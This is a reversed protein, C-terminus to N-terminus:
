VVELNPIIITFTAGEGEQSDIEITGGMLEVLKKCIALGLGTGGYKNRDQDSVQEFDDFIVSQQDLPIGCGTDIVKIKLVGSYKEQNRWFLELRIMGSDTFKIANSILNIVIQRLRFSDIKVKAPLDKDIDTKLELEKESLSPEFFLAIENMLNKLNCPAAKLEIRGAEIKSLDLIDNILILLSSSSSHIIKAHEVSKKDSSRNEILEAFGIISNMPTRLEHSMNSLFASKSENAQKAKETEEELEKNQQEIKAHSEEIRRRYNDIELSMDKFSNILNGLEDGPKSEIVPLRGHKLEDVAFSLSTIKGAFNKTFIVCVLFVTFLILITGIVLFKYASNIGAFISEYSSKIMVGGSIGEYSMYPSSPSITLLVKKGEIIKIQTGGKSLLESSVDIESEGKVSKTETNYVIKGNEDYLIAATHGEEGLTEAIEEMINVIEQVDIVVKIVGLFESGQYISMCLNTSYVEASEDYIIESVFLRQEKAKQWWEEDSQNLDTTKHNMAINVGYKNTVFVESFVKYNNATEFLRCNQIIQQSLRNNLLRKFEPAHDAIWQKELDDIYKDRAALNEYFKNSEKLSSLLIENSQFPKWNNIRNNISKNIENITIQSWTRSKEATSHLITDYARQFIYYGLISFTALLVAIFLNIKAAISM